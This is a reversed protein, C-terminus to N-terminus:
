LIGWFQRNFDVSFTWAGGRIGRATQVRVLDFLLQTAIGVSPFFGSRAAAFPAAGRIYALHAFPAITASSPSRGFKGLGFSVFPIPAQWEVHQTAGFSGAFEHFGYGPASTPGGLLVYEQAPVAPRGTVAAATASLRLLHSGFRREVTASASARGFFPQSGTITTDARQFLGARLEANWGIHLGLFAPRGPQTVGISARPGRLPWAPIPQQFRSILPTANITLPQHHEYSLALQVQLPTAAHLDFVIGAGRVEYPDTFDRGFAGAAISNRLLSTEMRDGANRHDREAFLTLDLLAAPRANVALRGKVSEDAFGIRGLLTVGAGSGLRWVAGAGIAVGEVRNVRVFDSIRGAALAGGRLQRSLADVGVLQQARQLVRRADEDSAFRVDDPLSDVINGHWEYLELRDAPLRVFEVGSFARNQLGVNVDYCCVDWRARIIGRAPFDLWTNQRVVEIEQHSPLWFQGILANELVVSLTEIRKDLFAHTTFTLAMRAVAGTERDLYVAGIVGPQNEERPRVYVEYLRLTQQPTRLTLSDRIAFDYAALGRRSLPHPVDRVDRGDGMRILDPFNNQVVGFRDRYYSVDAPLLLTDRQGILRQKSLTPAKWLLEVALQDVKVIRPPEPFGKGVQALFTLYGRAEATYDRLASDTFQRSRRAVAREVLSLTRADNWATSQAQAVPADVSLVTSWAILKLALLRYARSIPFARTHPHPPTVPAHTALVRRDKKEHPLPSILRRTEYAV